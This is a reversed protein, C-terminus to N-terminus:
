TGAAKDGPILGRYVNYLLSPPDWLRDTRQLSIDKGRGSDFGPRGGRATNALRIIAVIM